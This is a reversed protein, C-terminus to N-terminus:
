APLAGGNSPAASRRRLRWQMVRSTIIASGLLLWLAGAACLYRWPFVLDSRVDAEFLAVLGFGAVIVMLVAAAVEPWTVRPRVFGKFAAILAEVGRGALWWLFIGVAPWALVRWYQFSFDVPIWENKRGALIVNIVDLWMAPLNLVVPGWLRDRLVKERYIRAAIMADLNSLDPSLGPLIENLNIKPAETPQNRRFFAHTASRASSILEARLPWLIAVCLLLQAVPLIWRFPIPRYEGTM